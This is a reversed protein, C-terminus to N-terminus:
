RPGAQQSCPQGWVGLSGKQSKGQIYAMVLCAPAVDYMPHSVCVKRLLSAYCVTSRFSTATICPNPLILSFFSANRGLSNSGHWEADM